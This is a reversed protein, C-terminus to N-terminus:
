SKDYAKDRSRKDMDAWIIDRNSKKWDRGQLEVADHLISKPSPEIMALGLIITLLAAGLALMTPKTPSRRQNTKEMYPIVKWISFMIAVM